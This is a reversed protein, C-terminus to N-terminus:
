KSVKERGKTTMLCIFSRYAENRRIQFLCCRHRTTKPPFFLLRKGRLLIIQGVITLGEDHSEVEGLKEKPFQLSRSDNSRFGGNRYDENDSKTCLPRCLWCKLSQSFLKKNRQYPSELPRKM